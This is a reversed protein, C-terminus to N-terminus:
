TSPPRASPRAHASGPALVGDAHASDEELKLHINSVAVDQFGTLELNAKFSDQFMRSDVLLLYGGDINKNKTTLIHGLFLPLSIFCSNLSCLYNKQM